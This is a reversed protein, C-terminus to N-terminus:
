PPDEDRPALEGKSSTLSSLAVHDSKGQLLALRYERLNIFQTLETGTLQQRRLGLTLFNVRKRGRLIEFHLNPGTALGTQGVYGIMDGQDVRRGRRPGSAIRSLHSYRTTYGNPHRIEVLKGYGKRWGVFRVIGRGISVVPTGSPAAYDIARHPRVTRLIPHWRKLSYRSTIRRYSLPARLFAGHLSRGNM